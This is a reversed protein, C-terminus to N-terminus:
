DYGYARASPSFWFQPTGRIQRGFRLIRRTLQQRDHQLMNRVDGATLDAAGSFNRVFVSGVQLAQHRLYTNFALFVFRPEAEFRGDKYKLLHGFYELLTVRKRHDAHFDCAGTPFLCPFARTIYGATNFENIPELGAVPWRIQEDGDVAANIADDETHRPAQQPAFTEPISRGHDADPGNNGQLVPNTPQAADHDGQAEDIFHNPDLEIVSNEPLANVNDQVINIHQYHANNTRLWTLAIMVRERNVTFYSPPLEPNTNDKRVVLVDLQDVRRPLDTVFGGVDQTLNLVHGKSGFQGGRSLRHIVMLPNVQAILMKEVHTLGSLEIPLVGPHMNNGDSFKIPDRLCRTCVDVQVPNAIFSNENCVRCTLRSVSAINNVFTDRLRLFDADDLAQGDLFPPFGFREHCQERARHDASIDALSSFRSTNTSFTLSPRSDAAVSENSCEVEFNTSGFGTSANSFGSVSVDSERNPFLDRRVATPTASGAVNGEVATHFANDGHDGSHTSALSLGTDAVVNGAQGNEVLCTTNSKCPTSTNCFELSCFDGSAHVGASHRESKRPSFCTSRCGRKSFM